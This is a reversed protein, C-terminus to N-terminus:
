VPKERGVGDLRGASKAPRRVWIRRRVTRPWQRLYRPASGERERGARAGGPCPRPLPAGTGGGAGGGPGGGHDDVRAAAAAGPPASVGGRCGEAAGGERREVQGGVDGG